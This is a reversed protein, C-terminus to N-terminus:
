TLRSHIAGTSTKIYAKGIAVGGVGAAADDAYQTLGSIKIYESDNVWQSILKSYDTYGGGTDTLDIYKINVINFYKAFAELYLNNSLVDTHTRELVNNVYVYMVSSIFRLEIKATSITNLSATINGINPSYLYAETGDLLSYESLSVYNNIFVRYEWRFM